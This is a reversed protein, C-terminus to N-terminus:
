PADAAEGEVKTMTILDLLDAGTASDTQEGGVETITVFAGSWPASHDLGEADVATETIMASAALPHADSGEGGVRTETILDSGDLDVLPVIGEPTDVVWQDHAVSYRGPVDAQARRPVAFRLLYPRPADGAGVESTAATM